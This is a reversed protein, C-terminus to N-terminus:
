CREELARLRQEAQEDTLLWRERDHLIIERPDRTPPPEPDWGARETPKRNVIWGAAGAHTLWYTHGDLEFAHYRGGRYRRIPASRVLAVFASFAPGGAAREVIYHHPNYAAMTKAFVWNASAVFERAAGLTARATTRHQHMSLAGKPAPGPANARRRPTQLKELM